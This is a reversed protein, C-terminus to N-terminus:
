VTWKEEGKGLRTDQCAIKLKVEFSKMTRVFVVSERFEEFAFGDRGVVRDPIKRASFDVGEPFKLSILM